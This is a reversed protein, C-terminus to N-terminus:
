QKMQAELAVKMDTIKFVDVTLPIHVMESSVTIQLIWVRHEMQRILLWCYSGTTTTNYDDM